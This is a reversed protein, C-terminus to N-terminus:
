KYLYPNPILYGEFTTMFGLCGVLLFLKGVSIYNWINRLRGQQSPSYFVGVAGRYSGRGILTNSIVSIQMQHHPEMEPAKSLTSYKVKSLTSYKVSTPLLLIVGPNM